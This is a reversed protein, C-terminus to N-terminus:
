LVRERCSARGIQRPALATQEPEPHPDAARMLEDLLTDDTM